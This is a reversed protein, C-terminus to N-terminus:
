IQEHNSVALTSNFVKVRESGSRFSKPIEITLSHNESTIRCSAEPFAILCLIGITLEDGQLQCNIAHVRGDDSALYDIQM